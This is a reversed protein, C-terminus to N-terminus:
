CKAFINRICDEPYDVFTGEKIMRLIERCSAWRIEDIESTQWKLQDLSGEYKLYYIDDLVQHFPETFLYTFGDSDAFGLEERVERKM